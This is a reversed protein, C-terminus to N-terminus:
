VSVPRAPPPPPSRSLAAAAAAAVLMRQSLPLLARCARGIYRVDDPYAVLTAGAAVLELVRQGAVITDRFKTEHTIQIMGKEVVGKPNREVADNAYYKFRGRAPVAAASM